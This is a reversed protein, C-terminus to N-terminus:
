NVNCASPNQIKKATSIIAIVILLIGLLAFEQGKFPLFGLVGSALSIGLLSALIVSGCSACGVGLIGIVIGGVGIGASKELSYRHSFYFLLMSLNIGFLLAVLVMTTRSFTSFNTHWAGLLSTILSTKESLTLSDSVVTNTILHLNPLWLSFVIVVGAVLITLVLYQKHRYVEGFSKLLANFFSEDSGM